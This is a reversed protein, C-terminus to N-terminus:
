AAQKRGEGHAVTTWHVDDQSREVRIAVKTPSDYHYITRYSMDGFKGQLTWTDGSFTMRAIFPGAGGGGSSFAEYHWYRKEDYNYTSIALTKETKDPDNMIFSCAMFVKNASWGCKEWWRWNGAKQDATAVNAGRYLWTGAFVSLPRLEPPLSKAGAACVVQASALMVLPAFTSMRRM